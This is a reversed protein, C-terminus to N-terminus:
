CGAPPEAGLDNFTLYIKYTLGYENELKYINMEFWHWAGAPTKLQVAMGGRDRSRDNAVEHVLQQMKKVTDTSAVMDTLLIHWLRREDYKGAIHSSIAADYVFNSNIWNHEVVVTGTRELVTRYRATEDSKLELLSNKARLRENEAKSLASEVRIRLVDADVPKNVFDCAGARIANLSAERSDDGSVVIVPINRLEANQQMQDLVAFGDMGPMILDLLVVSIASGYHKLRVLASAGDKAKEIIFDDKFMNSLLENDAKSDDVILMRQKKERIKIVPEASVTELSFDDEEMDERYFAFNNRGSRKVHYLAADAKKYLTEFDAGDHPYTAIGVSGSICVEPSLAKRSLECIQKAKNAAIREEPIDNLFVVFEDGGLRGVLDDRRLIAGLLEAIDVLTQDGAAHGFTDNVQKFYDVDLMMLAHRSDPKSSGLLRNVKAAFTARNLMGTLPDTETREITKLEARKAIDIDEFLLYAEVNTSHPHEVLDVTLRLWREGEDLMERYELTINRKGQYYSVLLADANLFSMFRERDQELVYTRAYEETREDFFFFGPEFHIKLLSGESTDFMTKKNINCRFLSYSKPDKDHLSQLWKKYAADKELDETVDVFSIVASVPQGDDAFITSSHAELWRWGLTSKRQYVLSDTKKGHIINEYFTVYAEATEPSIRGELIQGYPVDEVLLPMDFISNVIPAVALTRTAVDFRCVINGSHQIALRNEEESVRLRELAEQRETVDFLVANVTMNDGHPEGPVAKINIWMSKDGKARARYIYDIPTGDKILSKVQEMLMPVDEPFVLGLVNAAALKQYEERTYGFLRCFGDSFYSLRIKHLEAPSGEYIAIGGPISNTLLELRSKIARDKTIDRGVGFVGIVNGHSDQLPFKSTSAYQEQGDASPIRDVHDIIAEGDLVLLDGKRFDNALAFTFLDFDTKGIIEQEDSLGAALCVAKSCCIYRLNRDKIFSFDTRTSMMTTLAVPLMKQISMAEDSIAEFSVYISFKGDDKPVIRGVIHFPRYEDDGCRLHIDCTVDHRQNIAVAIENKLLQREDPHIASMPSHGAYDVPAQGLLEWYRKNLHIVTLDKGNYEYLAAGGPLNDLLERSDRLLRANLDRRTLMVAIYDGLAVLRNIQLLQRHPDDIGIMGIIQGDRYLPVSFTSNIGQALLINKEELRSDDLAHVDGIAYYDNEKFAALWYTLVDLSIGQLNDIEHSVGDACAEYTNNAIYRDAEFEFIYARNAHFYGLLKKLTDNIGGEIDPWALLNRAMDNLFQLQETTEKQETVDVIISLHVPNGGKSPLMITVNSRLWRTKGSRDIIRFDVDYPRHDSNARAFLRTIMELDDPHVPKFADEGIEAAYEDKAYGLLEYFKDNALLFKVNTGNLTFATVGFNVGSLVARLQEMVQAKELFSEHHLSGALSDRGLAGETAATESLAINNKLCHKIVDPNYPKTVFDNAGMSLSRARSEEDDSGAVIIPLRSLLPDSRLRRLVECGDMVPLDLNLLVASVSAHDRALLELAEQGNTAQLIGYDHCLMNNITERDSKIDDVILIQRPMM